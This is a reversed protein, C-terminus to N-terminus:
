AAREPYAQAYLKQMADVANAHEPHRKDQYAAMFVKDAQKAAIQQRAETPSAIPEGGPGGKGILGDESLGRGLKAFVKIIEVNNGQGANLEAQLKDSGYHAVAKKALDLNQDFAAGWETKLAATAAEQAAAGQGALAKQAETAQGNWWEYLKNAQTTNLGLEHATKAFGEQLKADVALGEPAKFGYDKPDAPRGLKDFVDKWAPDDATGPLAVVRGKDMGVMKAASAYSRALGDLDKIDKFVASERLDAPLTDAFVPAAPAGGGAAGGAPAAAAAAPPAAAAPAGAGTGAPAPAGGGAGTGGDPSYVTSLLWTKFLRM